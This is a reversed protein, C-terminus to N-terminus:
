NLIKQFFAKLKNLFNARPDIKNIKEEFAIKDFYLNYKISNPHLIERFNNLNTDSFKKLCKFNRVQEAGM